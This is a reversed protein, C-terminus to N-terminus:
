SEWVLVEIGVAHDDHILCVLAGEVGVYEKAYQPFDDLALLVEFDDDGTRLEDRIHEALEEPTHRDEVYGSPGEGNFGVERFRNV